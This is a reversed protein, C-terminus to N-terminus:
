GALSIRDTLTGFRKNFGSTDAPAADAAMTTKAGPKPQLELITQYASPDVDKIKDGLGIVELAAKYVDSPTVADM